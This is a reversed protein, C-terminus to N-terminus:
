LKEINYYTNIIKSIWTTPQSSLYNVLAKVKLDVKSKVRTNISIEELLYESFVILSVIKVM